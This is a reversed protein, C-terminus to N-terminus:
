EELSVGGVAPQVMTVGYDRDITICPYGQQRLEEVFRPVGMDKRFNPDEPQLSWLTDHFLVIGFPNMHPTFLDWDRKVGEYSHDGDIFLIDIKRSWGKAAEDSLKRVIEVQESVGASALNATIIAFSDTSGEDNWETPAHPDIAYLKGAGNEKLAQGVYCASKGRASGIEVCVQPKKAKVLSYLLWACDGLGSRFDIYGLQDHAHPPVKNMARNIARGVSGIKGM